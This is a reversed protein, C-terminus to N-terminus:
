PTSGGPTLDDDAISALAIRELEAAFDRLVPRDFLCRVPIPFELAEQLRGVVKTAALSHGGLGFFDDLAGIQACGLVDAWTVAVLEEVASEAAVAPRAAVAPAPLGGRDVKGTATTPFADLSVWRHPVAYDPLRHRLRKAVREVDVTAPTLYGVLHPEGEGERVVVVVADAVGATGRLVNEVEGLEVRNGRIKVQHDARGHFDLVGGDRWRVLDGTRYCREGRLPDTVFADRTLDARNRYGRAVGAGGVYLEGVAGPLAPQGFPDVVTLLAGRIPRGIPVPGAGTLDDGTVRHTTATVTTETPGYCNRLSAVLPVVQRALAPDLAEGGALVHLAPLVPLGAALLMRLTTPTPNFRTAGTTVLRKVLAHGDVACDRDAIACHAGATLTTWIEGTAVDFVLPAVALWTDTPRVEMVQRSASVLADLNAHTVEVGKPRGTSGSTYLVYALDDGDPAPPMTAPGPHPADLDVVTLQPLAGRAVDVAAGRAAVVRVGADTALEALREAPHDPDLPLYAAGARWVGLLAGPLYEDRPLCVGVVDGRAVKATLLAGAAQASWDVLDRYTLRGDPSSVAVSDPHEQARALVETVVTGAKPLPDGTGWALVAAREADDLVTLASPPADPDATLRDLLTVYWRAWRTVTRRDFLATRFVLRGQYAAGADVLDLNLDFLATSVPQPVLEVDLGGLMVEAPRELLNVMVQCVPTSAPDRDPALRQVVEDFPTDAHALADLLTRRTRSLLEHGSRVDDRLDARIAVTNVFFGIMEALEAGRRGNHPVAVALDRVGALRALLLQWGALLVTFPTSGSTAALARIRSTLEAPLRVDVEDAPWDTSAPRDAPLRLAAPLDALQQQWWDLHRARDAPDLGHEWAAHDAYQLAPPPPWDEPGTRYLLDLESLLLQQSVADTVIHHYTLVLVHDAPTVRLLVARMPPGTHLEFPRRVEAAVASDLAHEAVDVTSVAVQEAPGVVAVPEGDLETFRSRLVHHRVALGRVARHLRSEDLAGRIRLVTPAHYATSDPDLRAAFWLRRQASSLPAPASPDTRPVLPPEEAAAEVALRATFDALVPHDFLTRVTIRRGLAAHLLGVVRTAALSRGGLAFFDSDPGIEDVELCARWVEAVVTQASSLPAAPAAAPAPVAGLARRDLKGNPLRPLSDLPHWRSPVMYGPLLQRARRDVAAPDVTAPTLYGVVHADVGDTVVAVAAGTVEPLGRLVSEIEGLEFRNGRVKVQDDTRGLFDLTGDPRWRVLDGTRYCRRDPRVPDAVFATHTLEPRGRYGRAVGTGGIWLEGVAGPPALRGAADMVYLRAGPTPTGIPVRTATTDYRTVRHATAAVTTETPGYGNWLEGVLPLVRRALVPELVEGGLLLRLGPDGSWGAALLMRLSTPTLDVLTVGTDAIQRALQHGDVACDRDAVVCRAGTALPWWLEEASVDFALPAIALMADDRTLGPSRGRSRVFAALNAHTIEVGKPQGTSGSTYLVYALADGGPLVLDVAPGAGGLDDADVLVAAPVAAVVAAGVERAAGRALVVRVGAEAGIRALRGVPQDPDLPLYGAGARWVALLLAPLLEDRPLCVGVADGPRVGATVLARGVQDARGVLEAYTLTGGTACVAVADPTRQAHGLVAEPVGAADAGPLDAGTGWALLEAREEPSVLELASLPVDPAAVVTHLLHLLSRTFCRARDASLWSPDHEIILEGGDVHENIFVTLPNHSGGTPLEGLLDLRVGPGHASVPLDAPQVAISVPTLPVGAAREGSWLATLEGVPLGRHDIARVSTHMAERLFEQFSRDAAPRLRVPLVDVLPGVTHELEALDRQAAAMGLLVDSGDVLEGVLVGLASLYVAFPTVGATGALTRVSSRLSEPLAVTIRDGLFRQAGHAVRDFLADPPAAGALEATWYRVWRDREGDVEALARERLAVDGIQAAAAAEPLPDGHQAAGVAAALEKMIVGISAGDAAIHDSVVVLDALDDSWRLVTIRLLPRDARLDFAHRAAATVLQAARERRATEGLGRLDHVELPVAAAPGVLLVPEGDHERITSRLAQHRVVLADAAAQLAARSLAGHCRLRWAVTTATGTSGLQALTWLDRQTNTLPYRTREPRHALKATPRTAAAGDLRRAVAAVTGDALFEELRVARQTIERLRAVARAAALSHGGSDIFSDHVGIRPLGLSEAIVEAVLRETETSPDVYGVSEDRDFAWASLAARDAKGTTGLPIADLVAIRSPVLHGPLRGRLWERLASEPVRDGAPEVFGVLRREGSEDTPALVVANSVGPHALLAAQVQGPEVRFGRVKVQDDARGVFHYVGDLRRVLDGTRYHRVGHEDRVYRRETLEAQGLYGRTVLAGSVWLEGTEGDALPRGQEDRVSFSAGPLPSGIPPDGREDRGVEHCSCNVTAETPGYCNVVRRVGENRYLRDVLARPLAEGAIAVTRVSGPLPTRALVSLVSPVGQVFTVEDRADLAPLALLNGALILSGGTVLPPFLEAVSADFCVSAAGLVGRLEEDSYTGGAWRLLALVNGHEVQVGKPRGTSGSTYIVYALDASGGPVGTPASRAPDVGTTTLVPVTTDALAPPRPEDTVVLSLRADEAISAIPAPPSAPDLPVYACGSKLVGLLAPVLWPGRRLCVGVLEGPTLGRDLIAHAVANAARDLEAYSMRRDGVVLACRQPTRGAQEEFARHVRDVADLDARM